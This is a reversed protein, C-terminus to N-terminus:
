SVGGWAGLGMFLSGLATIFSLYVVTHVGFKPLLIPSHLLTLFLHTIFVGTTLVYITRPSQGESGFIPVVVPDEQVPSTSIYGAALLLAFGLSQLLSNFRHLCSVFVPIKIFPIGYLEELEERRRFALLHDIDRDVQVQLESEESDVEGQEAPNDWASSPHLSLSAFSSSTTASLDSGKRLLPEREGSTAVNTSSTAQTGYANLERRQLADCSSAVQKGKGSDNEQGPTFVNDLKCQSPCSAKPKRHVSVLVDKYLSIAQYGQAIGITAEAMSWGLATWWVIHFVPSRTSVARHSNSVIPLLTAFSCVRLLLASITHIACSLLTSLAPVYTEYQTDEFAYISQLLSTLHFIPTRLLHSLSSFAIAILLEPLPFPLYPPHHAKWQGTEQPYAFSPLFALILFTLLTTLPTLSYLALLAHYSGRFLGQRELEKDWLWQASDTDCPGGEM